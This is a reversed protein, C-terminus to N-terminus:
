LNWYELFLKEHLRYCTPFESTWVVDKDDLMKRFITKELDCNYTLAIMDDISWESTSALQYRDVYYKLTLPKFQLCGYSPTGDQDCPNKANPNDGSECDLMAQLVPEQEQNITDSISLFEYQLINPSVITNNQIMRIENPHESLITLAQSSTVIGDFPYFCSAAM